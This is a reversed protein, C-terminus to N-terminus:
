ILSVGIPTPRDPFPSKNSIAMIRHKNELTLLISVILKRIVAFYRMPLIGSYTFLWTKPFDIRKQQKNLSSAWQQRIGTQEVNTLLLVTFCFDKSCLVPSRMLPKQCEPLPKQIQFYIQKGSRRASVTVWSCKATFYFSVIWGNSPDVTCDLILGQM